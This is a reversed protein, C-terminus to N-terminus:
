ATMCVRSICTLQPFQRPYFHSCPTALCLEIRARGTGVNEYRAGTFCIDTVEHKSRNRHALVFAASFLRRHCPSPPLLTPSDATLGTSPGRGAGDLICSALHTHNYTYLVSQPRSPTFVHLLYAITAPFVLPRVGCIQIEETTRSRFHCVFLGDSM